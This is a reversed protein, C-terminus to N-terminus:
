LTGKKTKLYCEECYSVSVVQGDDIGHCGVEAPNGCPLCTDRKVTEELIKATELLQEHTM